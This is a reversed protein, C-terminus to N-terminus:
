ERMRWHKRVYNLDGTQLRPTRQRCTVPATQAHNGALRRAWRLHKDTKRFMPGTSQVSGSHWKCPRPSELSNRWSWYHLEFELWPKQSCRCSLISYQNNIKWHFNVFFRALLCVHLASNSKSAVNPALMWDLCGCSFNSWIMFCQTFMEPRPRLKRFNKWWSRHLRAFPRSQCVWVWQCVM